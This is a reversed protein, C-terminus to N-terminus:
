DPSSCVPASYYYHPGGPGWSSGAVAAVAFCAVAEFSCAAVASCAAVVFADDAAAVADV